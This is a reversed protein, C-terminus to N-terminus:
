QEQPLAFIGEGDGKFSKVMNWGKRKTLNYNHKLLQNFLFFFLQVDLNSSNARIKKPIQDREPIEATHQAM